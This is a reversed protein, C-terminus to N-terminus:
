PGSTTHYTAHTPMAQNTTLLSGLHLM